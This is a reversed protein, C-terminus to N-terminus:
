ENHGRIGALLIYVHVIDRSRFEFACFHLILTNSLLLYVAVRVCLACLTYHLNFTQCKLSLILCYVFNIIYSLLLLLLCQSIGYM